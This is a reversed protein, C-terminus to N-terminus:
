KRNVGFLTLNQELAKGFAAQEFLDQKTFIGKSELTRILTALVSILQENQQTIFDLKNKVEIM